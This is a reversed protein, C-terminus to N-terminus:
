DRPSPSTYLLCLDWEAYTHSVRLKTVRYHLNIDLLMPVVSPAVVTAMSKKYELIQLLDLQQGAQHPLMAVPRWEEATVATRVVDLPVRFADRTLDVMTSLQTMLFDAQGSLRQAWTPIAAVMQSLTRHPSMAPMDPLILAAVATVHCTRNRDIPNSGYKHKDNFNDFWVAVCQGQLDQRLTNRAVTAQLGIADPRVRCISMRALTHRDM